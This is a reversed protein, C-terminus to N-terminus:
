GNGLWRGGPVGDCRRYCDGCPLKVMNSDSISADLMPGQSLRKKLDSDRLRRAVVLERGHPEEEPEQGQGHGEPCGPGMFDGNHAQAVM